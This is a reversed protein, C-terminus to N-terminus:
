ALRELDAGVEDLSAGFLRPKSRSKHMLAVASAIGAAAFIAAVVAAAVLRYPTDWLAAMVLVALMVIAVVLCLLTLAAYVLLEALRSQEEAIETILLALRTHLIDLATRGLAKLAAFPGPARSQTGAAATV